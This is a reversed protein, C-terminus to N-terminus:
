NNKPFIKKDFAIKYFAYYYPLSIVMFLLWFWFPILEQNYSRLYSPLVIYSNLGGFYYLFEFLTWLVAFIFYAKWFLVSSLRKRFVYSYLPIISIPLTFATFYDYVTWKDIDYIMFVLSLGFLAATFWFYSVWFYSITKVKKFNILVQSVTYFAIIPLPLALLDILSFPLDQFYIWPNYILVFLLIISNFSVAASFVMFLAISVVKNSIKRGELFFITLPIALLGSILGSIGCLCDDLSLGTFLLDFVFLLFYIIYVVLFLKWFLRM